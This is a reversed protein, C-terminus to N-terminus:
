VQLRHNITMMHGQVMHVLVLQHVLMAILMTTVDSNAVSVLMLTHQHRLISNGQEALNVKSQEHIRFTPFILSGLMGGVLWIM